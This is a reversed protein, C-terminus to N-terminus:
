IAEKRHRLLAAMAESPAPLPVGNSDVIKDYTVSYSGITESSVGGKNKTHYIMSAIKACADKIDYPVNALAYGAIYTVRMTQHGKLAQSAMYIYGEDLYVIYETNAEYTYLLENAFSDWAQVSTVSTIPLNNLFIYHTESDIDHKELTYTQSIWKRNTVSEVIQSAINILVNATETALTLGCMTELEAETILANTALDTM